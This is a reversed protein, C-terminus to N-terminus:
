SSLLKAAKKDLYISVNDHAQLISAPVDTTIPGEIINKIAEAKHEGTAVLFIEKAKLITGIGMTIAKTPVDKIDDFFRANAEKTEQTLNVINTKSDFNTGPENFGIHANTGIGLLQVDIPNNELLEDYRIAEEEMSKANGKLMHANKFNINIHNLFKEYMFTKYSQEHGEPLGIYEDLNFTSVNKYSTHNKKYDEVLKKYLPVPTGGTALGLNISPNNRIKEVFKDKLDEFLDEENEYIYVTM